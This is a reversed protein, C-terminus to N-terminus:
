INKLYPIVIDFKMMTPNTHCIKPLPPRNAEGGGGDVQSCGWFPGDQVPNFNRKWLCVVIIMIAFYVWASNQSQKVPTLVLSKRQHVFAEM